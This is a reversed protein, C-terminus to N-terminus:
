TYECQEVFMVVMRRWFKEAEWISVTGVRQGGRGLGQPWWEVRQGQSGPQELSRVLTSDWLIPCKTGPRICGGCLEPPEGM